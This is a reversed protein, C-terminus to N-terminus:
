PDVQGDSVHLVYPDGMARVREPLDDAAEAAGLVTVTADGEVRPPSFGETPDLMSADRSVNEARQAVEHRRVGRVERIEEGRGGVRAETPYV